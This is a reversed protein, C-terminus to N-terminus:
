FVEKSDILALSPLDNLGLENMREKSIKRRLQLDLIVHVLELEKRGEIILVKSFLNASHFQFM